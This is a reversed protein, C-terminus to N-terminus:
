YLAKGQFGSVTFSTVIIRTIESNTFKEVSYKKKLRKTSVHQYWTNAQNYHSRIIAFQMSHDLSQKSCRHM